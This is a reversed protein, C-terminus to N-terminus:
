QPATRIIQAPVSDPPRLQRQWWATDHWKGFKFGVNRYIGVLEFGFFEHLAVSADNPLGIGAFANYFGRGTLQKLLEAYLAKGAGKGRFNEAVYVSTDVSWRYAARSRHQSGYAYGCVSGAYQAILYPYGAGIRAIRERMEAEDPATEEFSIFTQEVIPAYIAAVAAADGPTAQRIEFM